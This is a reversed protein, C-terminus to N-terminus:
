GSPATTWGGEPPQTNFSIFRVAESLLRQWGGEPPQTNFSDMAWDYFVATIWGGEPPQTNFCFSLSMVGSIAWGAAKLRSHTSVRSRRSAIKANDWGGEPPQTNFSVLVARDSLATCM